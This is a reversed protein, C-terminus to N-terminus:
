QKECEPKYKGKGTPDQPTRPDDPFKRENGGLKKRAMKKWKEMEECCKKQKETQNKGCKRCEEHRGKPFM